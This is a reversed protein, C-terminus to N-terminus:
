HITVSIPRSVEAAGPPTMPDAAPVYALEVTGSSPFKIRSDFYCSGGPTTFTKTAVTTFTATGRPRFEILGTQPQGSAQVAHPAPRVCGWVELGHGHRASTTPMYLPLRWAAYAPKPSGAATLLGSAFHSPPPPDSILFQAFSAIRPNKWSLYEAWNLYYAQTRWPLAGPRSRDTIYGYETNWLPYRKASGQARLSADLARLVNPLQAFSAYDPDNLRTQNPPATADKSLPYPHVSFGSARFLGPNGARFRRANGPCGHQGAVRRRFPQYHADVCYLERIFRLPKTEGIDDPRNQGHASLAGILILDQGHGTAQLASWAVAVMRRYRDAGVLVSGPPPGQPSLDEGFNPENYIEWERVAPERHQGDYREAIAHVFSGYEPVSLKWAGLLRTLAPPEGPSQAWRPAHGAVTILVNLGEQNAATVVQDVPSWNAAPYAAPDSADFNPRVTSGSDPAVDSWSVALRLTGVGLDRLDRLAPAPDSGLAGPDLVSVQHQSAVAPTPGTLGLALTLSVGAMLASPRLSTLRM